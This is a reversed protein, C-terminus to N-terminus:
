KLIYLMNKYDNALMMHIILILTVFTIKIAFWTTSYAETVIALVVGFFISCIMAPNVIIKLLRREMLKLMKSRNSHPPVNTHYVYLRPLYLMGSIWMIVSIIHFAEIWHHYQSIYLIIEYM